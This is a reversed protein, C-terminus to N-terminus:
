LNSFYTRNRTAATELKELLQTAAARLPTWCPHSMAQQNALASTAAALVSEPIDDLRDVFQRVGRKEEDNLYSCGIAVIAEGDGRLDLVIEWAVNYNGWANCLEVPEMSLVQLSTLFNKLTYEFAEEDSITETM